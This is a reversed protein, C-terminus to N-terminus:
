VEGTCAAKVQFHLAPLTSCVHVRGNEYYSLWATYCHRGKFFNWNHVTKETKGFLQAIAQTDKMEDQTWDGYFVGNVTFTEPGKRFASGDSNKSKVWQHGCKRCMYMTKGNWYRCWVHGFDKCGKCQLSQMPKFGPCYRNMM